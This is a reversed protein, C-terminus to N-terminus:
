FGAQYALRVARGLYAFTMLPKTIKQNLIPTETCVSNFYNPNQRNLKHIIAM